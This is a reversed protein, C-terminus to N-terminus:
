YRTNRPRPAAPSVEIVIERAPVTGDSSAEGGVMARLSEGAPNPFYLLAAIAAVQMCTTFTFASLFSSKRTKHRFFLMAAIAGLTGGLFGLTLLTAEPTRWMGRQAARKDAGYVLFTIFSMFGVWVLLLVPLLRALGEPIDQGSLADHM